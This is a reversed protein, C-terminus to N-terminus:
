SHDEKVVVAVSCVEPYDELRRPESENPDLVSEDPLLLVSHRWERGGVSLWLWYSGREPLYAERNAEFRHWHRHTVAYGERKLWETLEYAGVARQGDFQPFDNRVNAYTRGTIMALVALACGM